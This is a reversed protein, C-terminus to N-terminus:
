PARETRGYNMRQIIEGASQCNNQRTPSALSTQHQESMFQPDKQLVTNLYAAPNNASHKAVYHILNSARASDISIGHKQLVKDINPIQLNTTSEQRNQEKDIRQGRNNDAGSGSQINEPVTGSYKLRKRTSEDMLNLLIHCNITLRKKDNKTTIVQNNELIELLTTFKKSTLQAILLWDKYLLRLEPANESTWAEGIRELILWVSYCAQNGLEDAIETMFEQRSFATPHKIWRM